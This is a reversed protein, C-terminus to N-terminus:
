AWSSKTRISLIVKDLNGEALEAKRNEIWASRNVESNFVMTAFEALKEVAHYYDLIVTAEPHKKKLWNSIWDAGDSIAVLRAHPAQEHHREILPDLRKTFDHCSGLHALYDSDELMMRQNVGENDSSIKKLGEGSFIRGVKTENFGEDTRLFGGDVQVYIVDSESDTEHQTVEFGPNQLVNETEDLNGFHQM